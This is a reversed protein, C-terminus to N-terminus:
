VRLLLRVRVGLLVMRVLGLIDVRGLVLVRGGFEDVAVPGRAGTTAGLGGKVMSGVACMASLAESVPM